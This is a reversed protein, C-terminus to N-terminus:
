SPAKASLRHARAAHKVPHLRVQEAVGLVDHIMANFAKNAGPTGLSECLLELSRAHVKVVFASQMRAAGLATNVAAYDDGPRLTVTRNSPPADTAPAGQVHLYAVDVRDRESVRANELFSYERMPVDAHVWKELDYLHDFPCHFPMPHVEHKVGPFRCDELLWWYRDCWCMMKPMIVKRKLARGLAVLNIVLRRQISDLLLHKNPNGEDLDFVNIRNNRMAESFAGHGEVKISASSETLVLPQQVDVLPGVLQVFGEYEIEKPHLGPGKRSFYSDSDVMWLKKERLRNRKGWTFEPTDGFQFTTHVSIPPVGQREQLSQTFFTHGSAFELYPFTSITFPMREAPCAAGECQLEKCIVGRLSSLLGASGGRREEVIRNMVQKLLAKRAGNVGASTHNTWALRDALNASKPNMKLTRAVHVVENFFTQDNTWWQVFNSSMGALKALEQKMRQLWAELLVLSSPTSRFFIIGTNMENHM